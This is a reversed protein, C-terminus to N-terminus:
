RKCGEKVEVSPQLFVVGADKRPFNSIAEEVLFNAVFGIDGGDGAYPSDQM